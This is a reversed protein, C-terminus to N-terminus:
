AYNGVWVMTEKGILAELSATIKSWRNRDTRCLDYGTSIHAMLLFLRTSQTDDCNIEFYWCDTGTEKMKRRFLGVLQAANM